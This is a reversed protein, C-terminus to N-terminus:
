TWASSRSLIPMLLGPTRLNNSATLFFFSCSHFRFNQFLNNPEEDLECGLSFFSIVGLAGGCASDRVVHM